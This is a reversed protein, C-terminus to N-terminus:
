SGSSEGAPRTKWRRHTWLWLDPQDRVQAEVADTAFQMVEQVQQEASAQPDARHPAGIEMQFEMPRDGRRCFVPFVPLDRRAALVGATPATAAPVGFFRVWAQRGSRHNLDVLIGVASSAKLASVLGRAGGRNDVLEQGHVRRANRLWRELLPNDLPRMLSACPVDLLPLSLGAIEYAGFHAGILVAGGEDVAAQLKELNDPTTVTLCRRMRDPDRPLRALEMFSLCLNALAARGLTDPDPADAASGYALEVNERVVRRRGSLLRHLLRGVLRSAPGMWRRPMIQATLFLGRALLFETVNRARSRDRAM